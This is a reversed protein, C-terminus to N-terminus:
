GRNGSRRARRLAALALVSAGATLAMKGANRRAMLAVEAAAGPFGSTRLVQEGRELARAADRGRDRLALGSARASEAVTELSDSVSGLADAAMRARRGEEESDDDARHVLDSAIRRLEGATQAMNDAASHLGETATTTKM